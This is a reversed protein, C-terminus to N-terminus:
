RRFIIVVSPEVLLLYVGIGREEEWGEQEREEKKRKKKKLIRYKIFEWGAPPGVRAPAAGQPASRGLRRGLM